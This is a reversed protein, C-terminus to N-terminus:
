FYLIWRGKLQQMFYLLMAKYSTDLDQRNLPWKPPGWKEKNDYHYLSYTCTYVCAIHVYTHTHIDRYIQLIAEKTNSQLFVIATVLSIKM